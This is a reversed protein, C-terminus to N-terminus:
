LVPPQRDLTEADNQVRAMNNLRHFAERSAQEKSDAQRLGRMDSKHLAVARLRWSEQRLKLFTDASVILPKQEPPVGQLARLRGAVVHLEPVITKEIVDALAAATIRGRRFRDVEKDYLRATRSEVAIVRDIEPRVDVTENLPRHVAILAYLTAVTVVTAMATALRRIQPIRENVDRAVVIGGALGCALAALEPGNWLGTTTLKYLVFLPPM